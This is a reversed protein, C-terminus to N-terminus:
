KAAYTVGTIPAVIENYIDGCRAGCRKVWGPLIASEVIKKLTLKSRVPAGRTKRTACAIRRAEVRSAARM